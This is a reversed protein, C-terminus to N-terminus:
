FDMETQQPEAEAVTRFGVAVRSMGESPKERAPRKSKQIEDQPQHDIRQPVQCPPTESGRDVGFVRCAEAASVPCPISNEELKTVIAGWLIDSAYLLHPKIGRKKLADRIGALRKRDAHKKGGRSRVKSKTKM